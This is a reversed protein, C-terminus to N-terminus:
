LKLELEEKGDDLKGDEQLKGRLETKLLGHLAQEKEFYLVVQDPNLGLNYNGHVYIGSTNISIIGYELMQTIDLLVLTKKSNIIREVSIYGPETKNNAAPQATRIRRVLQAKLNQKPLNYNLRLTSSVAKLKRLDLTMVKAELELENILDTDQNESEKEIDTLSFGVGGNSINEPHLLLFRVTQAHDIRKVDFLLNMSSLILGSEVSRGDANLLYTTKYTEPHTYPGFQRSNFREPFEVDELKFLFKPYIKQETM